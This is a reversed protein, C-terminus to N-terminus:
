QKSSTFTFLPGGELLNVTTYTIDQSFNGKAKGVSCKLAFHLHINHILNHM